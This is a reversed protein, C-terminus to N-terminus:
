ASAGVRVIVYRHWGGAKMAEHHHRAHHACMLLEDGTEPQRYRVRAEAPCRDCTEM